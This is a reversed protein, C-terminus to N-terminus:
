PKNKDATHGREGRRAVHPNYIIKHGHMSYVALIWAVAVVILSPPGCPILSASIILDGVDLSCRTYYFSGLTLLGAIAGIALWGIVVLVWWMM